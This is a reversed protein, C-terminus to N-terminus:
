FYEDDSSDFFGEGSGSNGSNGGSNNNGSGGSNSNGSNGSNNSGSSGSGNSGSNGSNESSGSNGSSGSSGSNSSGSSNNSYSGYPDTYSGYTDYSDQVSSSDPENKVVVKIVKTCGGASIRVRCTGAKKATIIGEPSVVAIRKKLSRYRVKEKSYKKPLLEPRLRYTKGVYVTIRKKVGTIKRVKPAVTIRVKKTYDKVTISLTGEGVGRARITGNKDVTFVKENGSTFSIAEDSLSAPQIQYEPSLRDGYLITESDNIGSISEVSEPWVFFATLAAIIAVAAAILPWRRKKGSRSASDTKGDRAAAASESNPSAAASESNLSAATSEGIRGAEPREAGRRMAYDLDTLEAKMQAASQYRDAPDPSCAKLVIRKLEDSGSVPEPLEAGSMRKFFAKDNDEYVIAAPAAPMFADRGENLFKYMVLGLSYIDATFDYGKGNFVEPAMYTFTGKRSLGVRTEEIMRSIGFDGLKFDGNESIFINEPKIDRHIIGYKGCLELATCIHIGLKRVDDETLKERSVKDVLPTLLELRILVDWGIKGEHKIIQHDEYNVVNSQGKLKAMTKLENSLTDMFTKYYDSAEVYTLGTAMVSKIDSEDPPVTIVKLASQYTFDLGEREILFVQGVSGLGIKEKIYWSGFVPEYKKYITEM